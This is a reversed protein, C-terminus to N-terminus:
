FRFREKLDEPGDGSQMIQAYTREGRQTLIPDHDETDRTVLGRDILAYLTRGAVAQASGDHIWRIATRQTPSLAVAQAM